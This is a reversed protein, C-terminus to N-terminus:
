FQWWYDFFTKGIKRTLFVLFALFNNTRAVKIVFYKLQHLSSRHRFGAGGSFEGKRLFAPLRALPM